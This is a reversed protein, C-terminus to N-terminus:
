VEHELFWDNLFLIEAEIAEQRNTYRGPLIPGGVPKTNVRWLCPWDRTFDSMRGKDGFLQRLLHFLLRFALGDPEVHSARNVSAGGLADVFPQTQENVLMLADGNEEVIVTVLKM